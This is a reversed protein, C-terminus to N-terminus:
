TTEQVSDTGSGSSASSAARSSSCGATIGMALRFGALDLKNTPGAVAAGVVAIGLLGAVRAVANNM